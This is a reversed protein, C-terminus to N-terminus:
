GKRESMSNIRELAETDRGDLIASVKEEAAMMCESLSPKETHFLLIGHYRVTVENVGGHRKINRTFDQKLM